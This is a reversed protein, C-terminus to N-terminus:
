QTGLYAITISTIGAGLIERAIVEAQGVCVIGQVNENIYFTPVQTTGRMAQVVYM